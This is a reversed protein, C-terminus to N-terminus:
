ASRADELLQAAVDESRHDRVASSTSRATRNQRHSGVTSYGLPLHEAAITSAIGHRLRTWSINSVTTGLLEAIASDPLGRAALRRIAELKEPVQQHAPVRYTGTMIRQVLVEDLEGADELTAADQEDWGDAAPDPGLMAPWTDHKARAHAILAARNAFIRDCDDCRPTPPTWGQPQAAPDDITDEDWALPPAYNHERAYTLSRSVSIKDRHTDAPPPTNWLREYLDAVKRATANAIVDRRMMAIFNGGTMGIQEGLKSMSWGCAILAHIRRHTGTPDVGATSSYNERVPQVALLKEANRKSIRQTPTTAGGARPHGYILAGASSYTVGAVTAIRKLGIGAAMLQKVHRRVPEADVLNDWRGYAQQRVRNREYMSNAASCPPCHCNDLVYCAYTGHQHNARKHLCPKPTRDVAARRAQGRAAAANKRRQKDCSHQGFHFQALRETKYHGTYGCDTCTLRVAM